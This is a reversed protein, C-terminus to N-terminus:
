VASNYRTLHHRLSALRPRRRGTVRRRVTGAGVGGGVVAAPRPQPFRLAKLRRVLRFLRNRLHARVLTHTIQMPMIPMQMQM